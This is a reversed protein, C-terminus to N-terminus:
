REIKMKRYLPAVLSAIWFIIKKREYCFAGNRKELMFYAKSIIGYKVQYKLSNSVLAMRYYAYATGMPNDKLLQAYKATLGDELYECYYLVENLLVMPGIEDLEAYLSIEPIFRENDFDRFYHQKLLNTKFFLVTDGKFAYSNLLETMTAYQVGEPLASCIRQHSSFDGRLALIGIASKKKEEDWIEKVRAIANPSLVDDSDLCVSLEGRALNVGKNHARHKGGNEQRKYRIQIKGEVIMQEVLKETEDTSGDDIVIWEFDHETQNVLSQYCQQLIYARNYTPTIVSVFMIKKRRAFTDNKEM